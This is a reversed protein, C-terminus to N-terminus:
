FVRKTLKLYGAPISLHPFKFFSRTWMQSRWCLPIFQCWPVEACCVQTKTELQSWLTQRVTHGSLVIHLAIIIETRTRILTHRKTTDIWLEVRRKLSWRALPIQGLEQDCVLPDYVGGTSDVPHGLGLSSHVSHDLLNRFLRVRPPSSGFM